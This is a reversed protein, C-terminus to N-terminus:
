SWSLLSPSPSGYIPSPLFVHTIMARACIVVCVAGTSLRVHCRGVLLIQSREETSRDPDMSWEICLVLTSPPSTVHVGELVSPSSAVPDSIAMFLSSPTPTSPLLIPVTVVAELALAGADVDVDVGCVECKADRTMGSSDFDDTGTVAIDAEM